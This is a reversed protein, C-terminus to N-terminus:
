PKFMGPIKEDQTQFKEAAIEQRGTAPPVESVGWHGFAGNTFSDIGLRVYHTEGARVDFPVTIDQKMEPHNLVMLGAGWGQKIEYHGPPLRVYSYGGSNLSLVRQGNVDFVATDASLMYAAPRYIYVLARDESAKVESFAPGHAACGALPLVVLMRWFRQFM